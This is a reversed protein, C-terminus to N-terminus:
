KESEVSLVGSVSRGLRRHDGVRVTFGV